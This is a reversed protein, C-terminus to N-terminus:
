FYGKLCTCATGTLRQNKGCTIVTNCQYNNYTQNAGCLFCTLNVIVGTQTACSTIGICSSPCNSGVCPISGVLGSGTFAVGNYTITQNSISGIGVYQYASSSSAASPNFTSFQLANTNAWWLYSLFIIELPANLSITLNITL